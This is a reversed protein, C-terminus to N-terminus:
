GLGDSVAAHWIAIEAQAISDYEQAIYAEDLKQLFLRDKEKRLIQNIFNSRNNSLKDVFSLVEDDLTISIKKSM